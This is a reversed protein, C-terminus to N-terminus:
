DLNIKNYHIGFSRIIIPQKNELAAKYINVSKTFKKVLIMYKLSDKEWLELHWTPSTEAPVEWKPILKRALSGM